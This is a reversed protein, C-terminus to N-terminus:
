RSLTKSRGIVYTECSRRARCIPLAREEDRLVELTIRDAQRRPSIANAPEEGQGFLARQTRAALAMSFNLRVTTKM